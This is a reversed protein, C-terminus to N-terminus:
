SISALGGHVRVPRGDEGALSADIRFTVRPQPDCAAETVTVSGRARNGFALLHDGSRPDDALVLLDSPGTGDSRMPVALRDRLPLQRTGTVGAVVELLFPARVGAGQQGEAILQVYETGMGKSRTCRVVADDLKYSSGDARTFVLGDSVRSPNKPQVHAYQSGCGALVLLSVLGPGLVRV